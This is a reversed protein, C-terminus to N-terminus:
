RCFLLLTRFFFVSEYTCCNSRSFLFFENCKTFISLLSTSLLAQFLVAILNLHDFIFVYISLTNFYLCIHVLLYCSTYFCMSVFTCSNHAASFKGATSSFFYRSVVIYLLIMSLGNITVNIYGNFLLFHLIYNLYM